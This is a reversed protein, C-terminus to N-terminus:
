LRFDLLRERKKFFTTLKYFINYFPANPTNQKPKEHNQAVKTAYCIYPKSNKTKLQLHSYLRGFTM